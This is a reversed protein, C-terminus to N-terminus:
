GLAKFYDIGSINGIKTLTEACYPQDLEVVMTATHEHRSVKMQAINLGYEALIVSVDRVLGLRDPYSIILTPHGGNYNVATGNIDIIEVAAGGISSGTITFVGDDSYFELKISNPHVDGLDAKEFTLELGQEPALDLANRLRPDEPGFGLLGGALARDTGHGKYTAAFSGHLRCIVRVPKKGYIDLALKALRCAGATHSSSPGVMIPGLVDTLHIKKPRNLM